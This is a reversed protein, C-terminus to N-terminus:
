DNAMLEGRAFWGRVSYVGAGTALRTWRTLCLRFYYASKLSLAELRASFNGAM